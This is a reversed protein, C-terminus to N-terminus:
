TWQFEPFMPAYLAFHIFLFTAVLGGLLALRWKTSTALRLIAVGAGVVYIANAVAYLPILDGCGHSILHTADNNYPIWLFILLFLLINATKLIVSHKSRGMVEWIKLMAWVGFIAMSGNALHGWLTFGPPVNSGYPQFNFGFVVSLLRDLIMFFFYMAIIVYLITTVSRIKTNGILVWVM